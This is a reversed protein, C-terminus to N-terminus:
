NQICPVQSELSEWSKFERAQVSQVAIPAGGHIM